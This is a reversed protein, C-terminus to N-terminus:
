RNFFLLHLEKIAQLEAGQPLAYSLKKKKKSLQLYTSTQGPIAVLSLVVSFSLPGHKVFLQLDYHPSHALEPMINTSCGENECSWLGRKPRCLMDM